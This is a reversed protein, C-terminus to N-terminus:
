KNFRGYPLSNQIKNLESYEIKKVRRFIDRYVDLQGKMYDRSLPDFLKEKEKLKQNEKILTSIFDRIDDGMQNFAKLIDENSVKIKQKKM